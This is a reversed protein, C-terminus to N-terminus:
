AKAKDREFLALQTRNRVGFKKLIGSMHLKVTSESISLMRAIQKNSVGRQAVIDLIQQQRPTLDSALKKAGLRRPKLLQEIKPHVFPEGRLIAQMTEIKDDTTYETSGPWIYDIPMRRIEQVLQPEIRSNIGVALKIDQGSCHILTRVANVVEVLSLKTEAIVEPWGGIIVLAINRARDTIYNFIDRLNDIYTMRVGCETSLREDQCNPLSPKSLALVLTRARTNFDRKTPSQIFDNETSSIVADNMIIM